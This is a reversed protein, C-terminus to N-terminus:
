HKAFVGTSGDKKVLLVDYSEKEGDPQEMGPSGMPMGPAALGLADPREAFLRKIDPAPVHGEIVYGEIKATHCSAIKEGIGAQRKIQDLAASRTDNASVKFGNDRLHTVWHECCTCFPSKWVEIPTQDTSAA